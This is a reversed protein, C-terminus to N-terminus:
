IGLKFGGLCGFQFLGDPDYIRSTERLIKLNEEGYGEFPNQWDACYNLYKYRCGKKNREAIIEIEEIIRKTIGKVIEDDKHEAWNITFSINVLPEEIEDLGLPNDDGLKTWYPLIPQLVLTWLIDKIKAQKLLTIGHLYATHTAKLTALDNIITTNTLIQRRGVPNLANVVDTADTLCRLKTSSWYRWMPRFKSNQFCEPWKKSHQDPNTYTSNVSILQLNLQSIWSFCTIPGAAYEDYIARPKQPNGRDAFEHFAEIATNAQFAPMYLYGSWVKACKFTRIKFETVIGFNNSGGKLAKWLSPNQTKSATVIEGSALVVEYSLVNNCVFGRRSSFFSIGGGLTLGGVGVHSDRGGAVARGIPDLYQSVDGWRCGAGVAISENDNSLKLTNLKSLDIVIGGQISAAGPVPSHGGARIAFFGGDKPNGATNLKKDYHQKIISVTTSVEKASTPRVVCAPIIECEQQAWYSNLSKKFELSDARIIVSHPVQKALAKALETPEATLSAPDIYRNKEPTQSTWLRRLLFISTLFLLVATM